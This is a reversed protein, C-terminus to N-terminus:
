ECAQALSLWLRTAQTRLLKAINRDEDTCKRMFLSPNFVFQDMTSKALRKNSLQLHVQVVDLCMIVAMLREMTGSGEKDV